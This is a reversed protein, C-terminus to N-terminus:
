PLLPSSRLLVSHRCSRLDLYGLCGGWLKKLCTVLREGTAADSGVTGMVFPMDMWWSAEAWFAKPDGVVSNGSSLMVGWRVGALFM